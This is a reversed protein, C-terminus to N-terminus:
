IENKKEEEILDLVEQLLDYDLKLYEDNASLRVENPEFQKYQHRQAILTNLAFKIEQLKELKTM